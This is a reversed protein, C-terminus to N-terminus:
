VADASLQAPAALSPETVRTGNASAKPRRLNVWLAKLVAAPSLFTAPGDLRAGFRNVHLAMGPDKAAAAFMVREIPNFSRRRAFDNILFRHGALTACQKGYRVLGDTPVKGARLEGSVADSLWAGMQFAWGCGVGWLPDASLQADGVLAMGRVVPPRWLNPYDKVTLVDGALEANQLTPADPLSQFRRKLAELPNDRCADLQEKLGMWVVLTIGGDNPFVYAADAGLWMQSTEGRKLDVNRMPALMGFRCNPATKGEAGAMRAIASNRGDAAVVLPALLVSEEDRDKLKVGEIRSSTAILSSASRGAMMTVGPTNSALGRVMPDLRLRRINYGHYEESGRQKELLSGVWGYPTHVELPNRLGGAEEILRDLGLRRLVPLASPQIFHTCLQKHAEPHAHRELVAVKAGQRALMIAATCGALSGGVVVADFKHSSM